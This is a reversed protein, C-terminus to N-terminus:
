KSVTKPRSSKASGQQIARLVKPPLCWKLMAKSGTKEVKAIMAKKVEVADSADEGTLLKNLFETMSPNHGVVLIADKGSNRSLINQFQEYSGGPQLAPETVLKEQHGIEEAVIRATQQARLLPSCLIADVSVKMAALAYGVNHSQEIGLKDLPREDDKAPNLKSDGASAHRLFYIDM